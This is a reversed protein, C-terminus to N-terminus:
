WVNGTVDTLGVRIVSTYLVEIIIAQPADKVVKVPAADPSRVCDKSAQSLPIFGGQPPYKFPTAGFNFAMEANKYPPFHFSNLVKFCM